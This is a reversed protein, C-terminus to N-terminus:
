YRRMSYLTVAFIVYEYFGFIKHKSKKIWFFMPAVSLEAVGM